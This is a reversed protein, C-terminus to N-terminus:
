RSAMRVHQGLALTVIGCCFDEHDVGLATRGTETAATAAAPVTTARRAVMILIVRLGESRVLPLFQMVSVNLSELGRDNPLGGLSPSQLSSVQGGQSFMRTQHIKLLCKVITGVSLNWTGTLPLSLQKWSPM